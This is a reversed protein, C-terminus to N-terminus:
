YTCVDCPDAHGSNIAESLTGSLITKSRSLTRCNSDFHYSKGKPTYYVTRSNNNSPGPKPETKPESSAVPPKTANNGSSNNASSSGNSTSTSGSNYSGPNTNFAINEGDTTAVITGNEDTRYVEIGKAKLRNMTSPHPHGYSNNNGVTIVAYKPSVKSLFSETTSSESGHHGIKLVDAKLDFGKNIMERESVGEADGTFLFSTNGYDMKVVISYDNLDEYNSSNPALLTFKAAGLNFTSGAVPSTYSLGKNDIAMLVDEYTKTTHNVEPLYVKNIKFSDIVKDLGGIHDEHPHTGIVVDLTNVGQNKLYSVVLNSDDNNGGDILMSEGTPVKIFISDAQGVDIFHVQLDGKVSTNSDNGDESESDEAEADKIDETIEPENEELNEKGISDEVQNEVQENEELVINDNINSSGLGISALLLVLCIIFPIIAKKFEIGRRRIFVINFLAVIFFPMAVLFLSISPDVLFPILSFIYYISALVKKWKVGSRFGPIFRFIDKKNM